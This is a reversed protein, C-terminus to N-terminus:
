FPLINLVFRTVFASLILNLADPVRCYNLVAVIESDISSWSAQLANQLGISAIIASSIDYAFSLMSLKIKFYAIILWLVARDAFTDFTDKAVNLNDLIVNAFHILQEM